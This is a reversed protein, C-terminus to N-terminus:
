LRPRYAEQERENAKRLSIIRRTEGRQTWIVVVMRDSLYGVTIFRDEGYDKRNDAITLLHNAFVDASDAMDLGRASLTLARKVPDYDIKM